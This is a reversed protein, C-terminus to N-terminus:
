CDQIFKEIAAELERGLVAWGSLREVAIHPNRLGGLAEANATDRRQRKTQPLLPDVITRGIMRPADAPELPQSAVPEYTAALCECLGQPYESALETLWCEVGDPGIVRGELTPHKPHEPSGPCRRALISMFEANTLWGTPKRYMGGLCCQDGEVFHVAPLKKLAAVPPFDWMFSRAPNEVSWLGGRRQQTRCLKAIRRAMESGNRLKASVLGPLGAPYRESRLVQASGHRDTRRARSFTKCPPGGHLWKVRGSRILNVLKRYGQNNLIDFGDAFTHSDVPGHVPLGRRKVASTLGAAGAFLELFFRFVQPKIKAKSTATAQRVRQKHVIRPYELETRARPKRSEDLARPKLCEFSASGDRMSLENHGASKDSAEPVSM